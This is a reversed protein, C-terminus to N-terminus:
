RAEKNLSKSVDSIFWLSSGLFIPVNSTAAFVNALVLLAFYNVELLRQIGRLKSVMKQLDKLRLFACFWKRDEAEKHSFATHGVSNGFIISKGPPWV